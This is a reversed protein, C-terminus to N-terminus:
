STYCNMISQGWQIYLLKYCPHEQETSAPRCTPYAFEAPTYMLVVVAQLNPGLFADRISPRFLASVKVAAVVKKVESTPVIVGTCRSLVWVLVRM